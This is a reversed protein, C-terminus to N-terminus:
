PDFCIHIVCIGLGAVYTVRQSINGLCATKQTIFWFDHNLLPQSSRHLCECFLYYLRSTRLDYVCRKSSPLWVSITVIMQSMTIPCFFGALNQSPKKQGECDLIQPWAILAFNSRFIAIPLRQEGAGSYYDLGRHV